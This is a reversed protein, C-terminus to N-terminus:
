RRLPLLVKRGNEVYLGSRLRGDAAAGSAARRGQLDFLATAHSASPSTHVAIASAGQDIKFVITSLSYAPMEVEVTTAPESIDLPIHQCLADETSRIVEGGSVAWPLTIRLTHANKTTDIAMVIVSDGKVYASQEFPANTKVSINSTTELRTSGTLFKSFHSMVYGRRLLTGYDNGPQHKEEGSGVFSWNAIMYWYIYASIGALMSENVEEAFLLDEHWTPLGDHNNLNEFTHETMWTEKGYATAITAATKMNGLPPNGYIHGGIIDIYPETDPDDLLATTYDPNFYYSEGGILRVGYKEKNLDKAYGKVLDHMQEPTYLCGSYDVWWDPENQIAVADVAADNDSMYKLYANLWPFFRRYSAAKLEGRQYGQEESNGGKSTGNTKYEGPPSWPTGFVIAGRSKAERVAPLYGHWDYPTDWGNDTIIDGKLNPSIEMRLINLGVPSDDGYLLSIISDDRIPEMLGKCAAAGFGTITQQRTSDVNITIVAARSGWPCLLLSAAFLISKTTM